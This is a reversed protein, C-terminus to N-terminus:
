DIMGSAVAIWAERFATASSSCANEANVIPIGSLGCDRAIRQGSMMGSMASGCYLAQINQREVGSDKLAEVVAPRALSSLSLQPFKGFPIISSGYVSVDRFSSHSM